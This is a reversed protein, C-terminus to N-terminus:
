LMAKYVKWIYISRVKKCEEKSLTTCSANYAGVADWSEGYTRFNNALIWAGIMVNTCPDLLHEKTYGLSALTGKKLWRSNIQMLGIDISKTQVLHNTNMANANLSSEVKAIGKLLEPDVGYRQGAESFCFAAANLSFTALLLISATQSVKSLMFHM